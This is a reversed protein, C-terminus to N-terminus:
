GYSNFSGHCFLPKFAMGMEKSATTRNPCAKGGNWTTEAPAPFDWMVEKRVHITLSDRADEEVHSKRMTKQPWWPGSGWM